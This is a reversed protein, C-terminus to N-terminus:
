CSRQENILENIAYLKDEWGYRLVWKLYMSNQVQKEELVFDQVDYSIGFEVVSDGM